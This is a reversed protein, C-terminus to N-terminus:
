EERKERELFEEAGGGFLNYWWRGVLPISRAAKPSIEEGSAVAEAANYTDRTLTQLANLPPAIADTALSFLDGSELSRDVAYRSTMLTAFIYNIFNDPVRDIQFERGQMWNKTEQVTANGLGVILAYALANKGAENYNGKQIQKVITKDILELQKLAFSKLSYFIRGNPVQLYKLPTDIPAIPQQGSLESFLLLKVNESVKGERLDNALSEFEDGYFKGWKKELKKMGKKTKALGTNYHWASQMSSTKGFRDVARFGSWTFVKDLAKTMSNIDSFDQSIHKELGFDKLNTVTSGKITDLVGKFANRGGYRYANIFLDGLQTTASIPNGLLIMNSLAKARQVWQSASQEGPGFRAELLTRIEESGAANIEGADIERSVLAGISKDYDIDDGLTVLDKGFLKHKETYNVVKTIYKDLAESATPAYRKMLDDDVKVLRAKQFGAKGKPIYQPSNSLFHSAVNAREGETLEEVSKNMMDAKQKLQLDYFSKEEVLGLDKRVGAVDEVIGPFHEARYPTVKKTIKDSYKLIKDLLNKTNALTEDVTSYYNENVQFRDIGQNKALQAAGPYDQSLLRKYFETRIEPRGLLRDLVMFDEAEKLFKAKTSRIDYDYKRVRKYVPVSVRELRSGVTEIFDSIFGPKVYGDNSKKLELIAKSIEPEPIELKQTSNAIAKEIEKPKIELRSAAALLLNTDELGEAQLEMIKSNVRDIVGNAKAQEAPKRAGKIATKLRNYGPAISRFAKDLTPALVAGGATYAGLMLPDIKGEEALQRAGEYGGGILGGIAAMARPTQGVPAIIIPDALSALFVGLMGSAGTSETEALRSLVPYQEREEAARTAQIRERRENVSLDLFDDGYLETPSAYFGKGATRFLDINGMPLLSELLIGANGALTETRDWEYKFKELASFDDMEREKSNFPLSKNQAFAIIEENTAGDPHRVVIIEGAPSKVRTEPM